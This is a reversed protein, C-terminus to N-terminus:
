LFERILREREASRSIFWCPFDVPCISIGTTFKRKVDIEKGDADKAKTIRFGSLISAIAVWVFAEAAFRGPCIRRGLGFIPNSSLTSEALLKGEETLFREPRFEDADDFKAEDRSMAWVNIIVLAGEPIYYSNYVDDTTTAHPIGLPVVPSWRLLELFIADLYPLSARDDFTPLRGSGIVRDIEAQARAQVEPYLVMALIFSHLTSSSTEFGAVFLTAAAAKIACEQRELDDKEDIANLCDAVMSPPAKGSAIDKKVQNFPGDLVRAALKRSHAAQRKFGAGPFWDPVRELIPFASFIAAREPSLAKTLLAIFEKVTRVMPDDRTAVEYGYALAMVNSAVFHKLHADFDVPADLLNVLLRRARTIYVERYHATLEVRLARHFLKRHLKWEDGYPLAVSSFDCGFSKNTPLVPRDSYISSRQDLLARAVKESNLIIFNQGLLRLYLLEGHKKGWQTYSLWPEATNLSLLNGLLPLARPGPPLPLGKVRPQRVFAYLCWVILLVLCADVLVPSHLIEGVSPLSVQVLSFAM